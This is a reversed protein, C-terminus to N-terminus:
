EFCEGSPICFVPPLSLYRLVQNGFVLGNNKIATPLENPLNFTYKRIVKGIEDTFILISHGHRNNAAKVSYFQSLVNYTIDKSHFGLEKMELKGLYTTKFITSDSDIEVKKKGIMSVKLYKRFNSDSQCIIYETNICIFFIIILKMIEKVFPHKINYIEV